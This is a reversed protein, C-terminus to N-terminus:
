KDTLTKPNMCCQPSFQKIFVAWISQTLQATHVPKKPTFGLDLGFCFFLLITRYQCPWFLSQLTFAALFVLHPHLTVTPYVAQLYPLSPVPLPFFRGFTGLDLPCYTSFSQLFLLQLSGKWIQQASSSARRLGYLDLPYETEQLM